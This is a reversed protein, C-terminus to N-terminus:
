AQAPEPALVSARALVLEPVSVPALELVSVPVLELVLATAPM